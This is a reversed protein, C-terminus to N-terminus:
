ATECDGGRGRKKRKKVRWDLKREDTKGGRISEKPDEELVQLTAQLRRLLHAGAEQLPHPFVHLFLPAAHSSTHCSIDLQANQTRASPSTGPTRANSGFCAESLTATSVTSPNVRRGPILLSHRVEFTSAANLFVVTSSQVNCVTNFFLATPTCYNEDLLTQTNNKQRREQKEVRPFWFAKMFKTM